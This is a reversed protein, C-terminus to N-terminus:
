LEKDSLKTTDIRVTYDSVPAVAEETKTEEKTEETENKTDNKGSDSDSAVASTENTSTSNGDDTSNTSNDVVKLEEIKVEVKFNATESDLSINNENISAKLSM